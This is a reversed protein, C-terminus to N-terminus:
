RSWRVTCNKWVGCCVVGSIEDGNPGTATFKTRSWDDEDSGCGWWAYGDPQVNSFGQAEVIKKTADENTCGGLALALLGAALGYRATMRGRGVARRVWLPMPRTGSGYRKRPGSRFQHPSALSGSDNQIGTQSGSDPLAPPPVRVWTATRFAEENRM